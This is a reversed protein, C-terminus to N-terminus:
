EEAKGPPDEQKELPLPLYVSEPHRAGSRIDQILELAQIALHLRVDHVTGGDLRRLINLHAIADKISQLEAQSLRM